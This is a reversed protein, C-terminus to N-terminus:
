FGKGWGMEGIHKAVYFSKKKTHTTQKIGKIGKRLHSIYVYYVYIAADFKLLM